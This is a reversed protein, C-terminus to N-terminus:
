EESIVTVTQRLYCGRQVWRFSGRGGTTVCLCRYVCGHRSILEIIVSEFYFGIHLNLNFMFTRSWTLGITHRRPGM